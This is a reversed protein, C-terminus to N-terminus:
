IMNFTFLIKLLISSLKNYILIFFHQRLGILFNVLILYLKILLFSRYVIILEEQISFQHALSIIILNLESLFDPLM